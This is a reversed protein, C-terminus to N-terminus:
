LLITYVTSSKSKRPPKFNNQITNESFIIQRHYYIKCITVFKLLFLVMSSSWLALFSVYNYDMVTNPTSWNYISVDFLLPIHPLFEVDKWLTRTGCCNSLRTSDATILRDHSRSLWSNSIVIRGAWSNNFRTFNYVITISPPPLANTHITNNNNNKNKLVNRGDWSDYPYCHM